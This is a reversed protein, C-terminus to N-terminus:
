PGHFGDAHLGDFGGDQSVTGTVPVIQWAPNRQILYPHCGAPDSCDYWVQGDSPQSDDNYGYDPSIGGFWNRQMLYPYCGAPDSCDYWVQGGSSQSDDDNGYDPYTGGFSWGHGDQDVHGYFYGYGQHGGHVEGGQLAGGPFGGGLSPPMASASGAQCLVAAGLLGAAISAVRSRKSPRAESNSVEYM